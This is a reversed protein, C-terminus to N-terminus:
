SIVGSDKPRLPHVPIESDCFLRPTLERAGLVSGKLTAIGRRVRLTLTPQQLQTDRFKGWHHGKRVKLSTDVL